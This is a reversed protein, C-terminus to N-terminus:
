SIGQDEDPLVGEQGPMLGKKELDEGLLPAQSPIFTQERQALFATSRSASTLHSSLQEFMMDALGIGGVSTMKKALEQDYMDQWFQEDRSHLLTSQHVSKRMEQWMKQIFISEFGECAERLKKAKAEPSLPSMKLSGLKTQIAAGKADSQAMRATDLASFSTM